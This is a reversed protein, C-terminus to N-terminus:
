PSRRTFSCVVFLKMSSQVGHSLHFRMGMYGVSWVATMKRVTAQFRRALLECRFAIGVYLPSDIRHHSVDLAELLSSAFSAIANQRRAVLRSNELDRPLRPASFVHAVPRPSWPAYALLHQVHYLSAQYRETQVLCLGPTLPRILIRSAISPMNM